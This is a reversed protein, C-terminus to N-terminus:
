ISLVLTEFCTLYYYDLSVTKYNHRYYKVDPFGFFDCNILSLTLFTM